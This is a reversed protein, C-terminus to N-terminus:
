RIIPNLENLLGDGRPHIHNCAQMSLKPVDRAEHLGGLLMIYAENINSIRLSGIVHARASHAGSLTHEGNPCVARHSLHKRRQTELTLHLRPADLCCKTRGTLGANHNGARAYRDISHDGVKNGPRDLGDRGIVFWVVPIDNLSLAGEKVGGKRPYAQTEQM